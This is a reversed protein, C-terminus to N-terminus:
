PQPERHELVRRLDPIGVSVCFRAVDARSCRFLGTLEEIRQQRMKVSCLPM